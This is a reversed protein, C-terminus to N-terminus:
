HMMYIDGGRAHIKQSPAVKASCFGFVCRAAGHPGGSELFSYPSLLANAMRRVGVQANRAPRSWKARLARGREVEPFMVQLFMARKAVAEQSPQLALPHDFKSGIANVERQDHAFRGEPSVERYVTLKEARIM